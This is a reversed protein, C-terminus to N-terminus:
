DKIKLSNNLWNFPKDINFYYISNQESKPDTVTMKDYHHNKDEILAQATPQVGMFNFLAYEEDTSIVVFATAMTKGDGSDSISKLLKQFINKHFDAKDAHGLERNALYAGFHANIDLYNGALIKESSILAQDYQKSNLSAFMAKRTERDGGYPSYQKTETYALRLERFNVAADQRKVRELLVEYVDKDVPKQALGAAQLLLLCFVIFVTKRFMDASSARLEPGIITFSLRSEIKALSNLTALLTL